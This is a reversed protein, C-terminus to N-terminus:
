FTSITCLNLHPGDAELDRSQGREVCYSGYGELSANSQIHVSVKNQRIKKGNKNRVNKSWWTLEERSKVDLELLSNFDYSILLAEVKSRELARYHM